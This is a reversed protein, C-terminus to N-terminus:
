FIGDCSINADGIVNLTLCQFHSLVVLVCYVCTPQFHCFFLMSSM